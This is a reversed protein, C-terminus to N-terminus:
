RLRGSRGGPLDSCGATRAAGPRALPRDVVGPGALALQGDQVDFVIGAAVVKPLLEGRSIANAPIAIRATYATQDREVAAEIVRGAGEVLEAVLYSFPSSRPQEM